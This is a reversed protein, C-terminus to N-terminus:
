KKVAILGLLEVIRGLAILCLCLILSVALSGVYPWPSPWQEIGYLESREAGAYAMIAGITALVVGAGGILKLAPGVLSDLISSLPTFDSPVYDAFQVLEIREVLIGDQEALKRAEDESTTNYIREVDTGLKRLAGTVKFQM